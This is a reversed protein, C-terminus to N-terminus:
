QTNRIEKISIRNYHKKQTNKKHKQTHTNKINKKHKKITYINTM